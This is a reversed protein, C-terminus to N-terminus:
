LAQRAHDPGPGQSGALLQRRGHRVHHEIRLSQGQRQQRRDEAHHQHRPRRGANGWPQGVVDALDGARQRHRARLEVRRRREVRRDDDLWGGSDPRGHQTRGRRRFVGRGPDGPHRPEDPQSAGTDSSDADHRRRNLTGGPARRHARERDDDPASCEAYGCYADRRQRHDDGRARRSEHGCQDLGHLKRGARHRRTQRHQFRDPQVHRCLHRCAPRRDPVHRFRRHGRVASERHASPEVSGRDRRAAPRGVLRQRRRHDVGPRLGRIAPDRSVRCRVAATEPRAYM